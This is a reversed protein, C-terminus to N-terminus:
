WSEIRPLPHRDHALGEGDGRGTLWWGLDAASGAVVRGGEGGLHWTRALDRALVTFPEAYPRAGMSDILAVSFEAPWHARTYGADLDAHHIEVERWRMLPIARVGIRQGGPTREFRQHLDDPEAARAARSFCHTAALLRERVEDPGEAALRAIEADRARDSDYMTRHEGHRLGTLVRELAEANLALHAVVHARSWGPLLSPAVLEEASLGDVTRVLRQDSQELLDLDAVPPSSTM